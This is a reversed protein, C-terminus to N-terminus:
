DLFHPADTILEPTAASVRGRCEPRGRGTKVSYLTEIVVHRSEDGWLGDM